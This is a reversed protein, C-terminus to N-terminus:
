LIIAEMLAEIFEQATEPVIANGAGRLLGVRGPIGHALPFLAPQAPIRRAKGDACPIVRFDSWFGLDSPAAIPGAQQAHERGPEHRDDGHGALGELGPKLSHGVGGAGCGGSASGRGPEARRQERGDGAAHELGDANGRGGLGDRRHAQGDIQHEARGIAHEADALRAAGWFIRQRIHPAGQSCAPTDAAGCAYGDAELDTFVGDLWGHRIAASVQEGVVIAPRRERILRRMEPWLHREDATGKGKGACSFPQCPCSGSWLPRDDPWGALRAALSWGGIGAFFHCQTYGNLDEPQVDCISREDVDGPAILGAAILERLWAAAKPDFENYYARTM